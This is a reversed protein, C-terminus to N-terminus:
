DSPLSFSKFFKAKRTLELPANIDDGSSPDVAIESDVSSEIELFESESQYIKSWNITEHENSKMM